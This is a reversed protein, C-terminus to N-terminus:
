GGYARGELNTRGDKVIQYIQKIYRTNREIDDLRQLSHTLITIQESQAMRMANMQGALVGAQEATIGKISGTLTDTENITDFMGRVGDLVHLANNASENMENGIQTLREQLEELTMDGRGYHKWLEAIRKIDESLMNELVGKMLNTKIMNRVMKNYYAEFDDVSDKGSEFADSIMDYIDNFLQDSTVGVTKEAYQLIYEAQEHILRSLEMYAAAIKEANRKPHKDLKAIIAEQTKIENDFNDLVKQYADEQSINSISDKLEKYRKKLENLRALAEYYKKDSLGSWFDVKQSQKKIEKALDILEYAKAYYDKTEWGGEAIQKYYEISSSYKDVTEQLKELAKDGYLAYNMIKQLLDTAGGIIAGWWGGWAQAGQEAAQINGVVDNLITGATSLSENGISEGIEIMADGIATLEDLINDALNKVMDYLLEKAKELADADLIEGSSAKEVAKRYNDIAKTLNDVPEVQDGINKVYQEFAAMAEDSKMLNNLFEESVGNLKAFTAVDETKFLGTRSKQAFQFIKYLKDYLIGRAKKGLNSFSEALRGVADDVKFTNLIIDAIAQKEMRDLMDLQEQTAHERIANRKEEYDRTITNIKDEMTETISLIENYVNKLDSERKKDANARMQQLMKEQEANLTVQGDFERGAEKANAEAITRNHELMEQEIRDNAQKTQDYEYEILAIRREIGDKALEANSKDIANQMNAMIEKLSELAKLRKEKIENISNDAYGGGNGGSPSIDINSIDTVLSEASKVEKNVIRLQENVDKLTKETAQLHDNYYQWNKDSTVLPEAGLGQSALGADVQRLERWKKENDEYWKKDNEAQRKQRLLDGQKIYAQILLETNAEARAKEKIKDVYDNVADINGRIIRGTKDLMGNYQPIMRNLEAVAKRKTDYAASENKTIALLARVKAIEEDYKKTVTKTADIKEKVSRKYESTTKKILEIHAKQADETKRMNKVLVGAAAIIASLIALIWGIVPVKKIASSLLTFGGAAGKAATGAATTATADATAAIAHKAHAAGGAAAAAAEEADAAAAEAQVKVWYRKLGNLIVLRFASDKDLTQQLQQIGVTIAMLSLVRAMIAQLKEEEAGFLGAAGAAASFAGSLGGLGSLLGQTVRQDHALIRAQAAADGMADTLKGAKEQLDMYAKSDRLGAAEMAVLEERVERLQTRLSVHREETLESASGVERMATESEKAARTFQGNKLLVEYEVSKPM